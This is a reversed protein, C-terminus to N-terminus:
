KPHDPEPSTGQRFRPVPLGRGMAVGGADGAEPDLVEIQQPHHLEIVPGGRDAIWGRARVLHGTLARLDLGAAITSRRVTSGVILTLDRRRDPGFNVFTRGRVDSVSAVRGQLITFPALAPDRLAQAGSAAVVGYAPEAWLGARSARGVAEHALLEAVCATMGPLSIMRAQGGRLLAGQVWRGADSYAITEARAGPPDDDDLFVHAVIKGWRDSRRGAFGLVVTRGTVLAGLAVRSAEAPPWQEGPEVVDGPRPALVGALRVQTGDALVLTDGDLVSTVTGRQGRELACPEDRSRASQAAVPAVVGM